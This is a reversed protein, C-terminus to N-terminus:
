EVFTAAIPENDVRPDLTVTYSDGVDDDDPDDDVVITLPTPGDLDDTLAWLVEQPAGNPDNLYERTPRGSLPYAGPALMIAHRGGATLEIDLDVPDGEVDAIWVVLRARDGADDYTSAVWTVRPRANKLLVESSCAFTGASLTALVALMKILNM